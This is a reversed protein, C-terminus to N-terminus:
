HIKSNGCWLASYLTHVRLCEATRGGGSIIDCPIDTVFNSVLSKLICHGLFLLLSLARNLKEIIQLTKKFSIWFFNFELDSGQVLNM